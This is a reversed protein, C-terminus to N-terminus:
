PDVALRHDLDRSQHEAVRLMRADFACMELREEATLEPSQTMDINLLATSFQKYSM